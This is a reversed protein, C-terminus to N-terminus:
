TKIPSRLTIVTIINKDSSLHNIYGEATLAMGEHLILKM